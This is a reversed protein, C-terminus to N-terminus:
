TADCSRMGILIVGFWVFWADSCVSFRVRGLSKRVPLWCCVFHYSGPVLCHDEMSGFVSSSLHGVYDLGACVLAMKRVTKWLLTQWVGTISPPHHRGLNQIESRFVSFHGFDAWKPQARYINLGTLFIRGRKFKWGPGHDLVAWLYFRTSYFSLGFGVTARIENEGSEVGRHPPQLCRLRTLRPRPATEAWRGGGRRRSLDGSGTGGWLGNEGEEM